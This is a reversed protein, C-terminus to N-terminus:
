PIAKLSLILASASFTASGLDPVTETADLAAASIFTGGTPASWLGFYTAATWAGVAPGFTILGTNHIAQASGTSFVIAQRAYGTSTLESAGTTGPNSSHLSVYLASAGLVNLMANATADAFTATM